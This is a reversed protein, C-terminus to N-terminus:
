TLKGEEKLTRRAEVLLLHLNERFECILCIDFMTRACFHKKNNIKKEVLEQLKLASEIKDKVELQKPIDLGNEYFVTLTWRDTKEANKMFIKIM